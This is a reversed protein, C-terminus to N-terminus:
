PSPSPPSWCMEGLNRCLRVQTMVGLTEKIKEMVRGGEDNWVCLTAAPKITPRHRGRLGARSTWVCSEPDHGGESHRVHRGNKLGKACM